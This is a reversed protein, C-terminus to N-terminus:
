AMVDCITSLSEGGGRALPHPEVAAAVPAIVQAGKGLADLNGLALHEDFSRIVLKQV